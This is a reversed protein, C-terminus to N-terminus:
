ADPTVESSASKHTAPEATAETATAGAPATTQAKEAVAQAEQVALTFKQQAEEYLGRLIDRICCMPLGSSNIADAITNCLNNYIINPDM